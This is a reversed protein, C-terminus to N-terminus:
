RGGERLARGKGCPNPCNACDHNCVRRGGGEEQPGETGERPGEGHHGEMGGRGHFGREGHSHRPGAWQDAFRQEWDSNLKELSALLRAKEEEALAAFMEGHRGARQAKAEEAQKGGEDTLTIDATRRDEESERRTVLGANELKAIVESASGPRIGLCETLERQTIPGTELLLILIRKQSGRGESLARLAHGLDRLNIILRGNTDEQEYRARRWARRDEQHHGHIHNENKM